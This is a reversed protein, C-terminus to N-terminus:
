HRSLSDRSTLLLVLDVRFSVERQDSPHIHAPPEEEPRQFSSLRQGANM